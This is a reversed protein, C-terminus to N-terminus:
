TEGLAFTVRIDKLLHGQPHEVVQEWTLEDYHHPSASRVKVKDLIAEIEDDLVDIEFFDVVRRIEDVDLCEIRVIRYNKMNRFLRYTTFTWSSLFTIVKGARDKADWVNPAAKKWFLVDPKNGEKLHSMHSRLSALPDRLVHLIYTNEDVLDPFATAYVTSDGDLEGWGQFGEDTYVDNHGINLGLASLVEIVYKTGAFGTGVILLKPM